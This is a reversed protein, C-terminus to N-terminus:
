GLNNWSARESGAELKTEERNAIKPLYREKMENEKEVPEIRKLKEASEWANAYLISYHFGYIADRLDAV